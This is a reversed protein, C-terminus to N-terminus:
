FRLFRKRLSIWQNILTDKEKKTILSFTPIAALYVLMLLTSYGIQAMMGAPHILLNLTILVGSLLLIKAIRWYEYPIHYDKQSGVLFFGNLCIYVVLVAVAAGLIGWLPVLLFLLGAELVACIVTGAGVLKTNKTLLVGISTIQSVGDAVLKYTLFPIIIYASEYQSTALLILLPRGYLSLFVVLISSLLLYYSLTLSYVKPANDEKSTEFIFGLNATRFAQAFFGMISAIRLGATYIGTQELSTQQTIVMRDMSVMLWASIGVLALPVWYRFMEIFHKPSFSLSFFRRNILIGLLAFVIYAIVNSLFVGRTGMKLVVVMLINLLITSVLYPLTISIYTFPKRLLRVLNLNFNYLSTFPMGVAAIRIFDAFRLEKFLLLSVEEALLYLLVAAFSNALLIYISLTSVTRKRQSLEPQDYFFFSLAADTGSTLITGTLLTLIAIVDIAGYDAVSFIRAYIPMLLFSIFKSGAGGMGYVISEKALRKFKLLM